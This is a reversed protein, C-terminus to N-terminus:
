QERRVPGMTEDLWANMTPLFIQPGPIHGGEFLFLKKPERLLKYLPEGETKFPDAEDYRGHMMLKPPKIHPAFNIANAEPKFQMNYRRVGAGTFVISRYRTEIAPLILKNNGGSPGFYAIRSRDIDDRSELYDLGRRVDTFM